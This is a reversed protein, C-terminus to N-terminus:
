KPAHFATVLHGLEHVAPKCALEVDRRQDAVAQSEVLGVVGELEHLSLVADARHDLKSRRTTPVGGPRASVWSARLALYAPPGEASLSWHRRWSSWGFPVGVHAGSANRSRNRDGQRSSTATKPASATEFPMSLASALPLEGAGRLSSTRVMRRDCQRRFRDGEPGVHALEPLVVDRPRAQRDDAEVVPEGSVSAVTPRSRRFWVSM